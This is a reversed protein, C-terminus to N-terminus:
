SKKLHKEAEDLDIRLINSVGLEQMTVGYLMDVEEMTTRKHTIVVMQTNNSMRRMYDSFRSVNADDLAADIEDMFVFPPPRVALIAFYIAIAVFAKEGGSLLSLTKVSKGPPQVQIEIGCNLVDNPDELILSANGGDFLDKFTKEFSKNIIKFERVFINRMHATIEDIIDILKQKATEVDEYQTTLFTYRTNVREFEDIAGINPEGLEKMHQKIEAIQKQASSQSSIEAAFNAANSRSLEYNDWLNDIIQKEEMEAALKRQELRGCERELDLIEKNKEQTTKNLAVREAEIEMKKDNIESLSRNLKEIEGLVESSARENVLIEGRIENNRKNFEVIAATQRERSDSMEAKIAALEFVASELAQLEADLSAKQARLGSITNQVDERKGALEEQGATVAEIEASVSQAENELKVISHKVTETEDNNQNIRKNLTELEGKQSGIADKAANLVLEYHSEDSEFRILKEQAARLEDQATNLEYIAANKERVCESFERNANKEDEIFTEIRTQVQELENARSLVGAKNAVSGGTMSGGASLVQGDLTVIKFRHGHKRAISIASNLNEAIVVRGLLNSYINSYKSDFRILDLAIGVFGNNKEVDRENFSSPKITSLPLFTARGGDRRSLYNIASKGEEETDVIINQMAGGLATEIAIAYSDDTRLLSGVTGHVNKFTGRATEQMIIKVAKSYGQFDKEMESLLNHRSQLNKLENSIRKFKEEATVAKKERNEAKLKYGNVVNTLTTAEEQAEKLAIKCDEHEKTRTEMADLASAIELKMANERDLLEQAQSALASLESKCESQKNRIDDEDRLKERLKSARSDAEGSIDELEHLTQEMQENLAKIEDSIQNLREEKARIQDGVGDQRNDQNQVELNLREIQEINSELQSKLVSSESEISSLRAQVSTINERLAEAHIDCQRMKESIDEIGTYGSELALTAIDFQIKAAASDAAAKDARARLTDLQHLWVAIELGRLEDRHLLYRKAIEAQERLPEIQMELESIKDGIRVLNEDTHKLKRESEDKRHRFRSIGAAEEFIERRDTSKTSLIDSIKGQGIISYGERGLGTDMLLESVDKLRVMERNIYYESEGSRYYRRTLMVESSDIEFQGQSNDLILSVEAFGIQSRRQTGGFIVDEMKGGRLTRSSQEGMVWLMADAINSKGSGNPGVIGTIPKEFSLRTKEPFSKFGQIELSKLYL